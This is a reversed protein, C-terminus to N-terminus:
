RKKKGPILEPTVWQSLNQFLTQKKKGSFNSFFCMNKIKEWSYNILWESLFKQSGKNKYLFIMNPKNKKGAMKPMTKTKKKGRFLKSESVWEISFRTKKKRTRFFFFRTKWESVRNKGFFGLFYVIGPFFFVSGKGGQLTSAM